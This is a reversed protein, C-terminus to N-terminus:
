ISRGGTVALGAWFLRARRWFAYRLVGLRQSLGEAMVLGVWYFNFRARRTGPAAGDDAIGDAYRRLM